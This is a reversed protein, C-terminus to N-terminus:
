HPILICSQEQLDLSVNENSIVIGITTGKGPVSSITMQFGHNTVIKNCIKLGLGTGKEGDTGTTSKVPLDSYIKEITDEDMGPGTDTISLICCDEESTLQVTIAGAHPTFKVANGVLNSIIQRFYVEDINISFNDPMKVTFDINKSQIKSKYIFFTSDIIPKILSIKKELKMDASGVKSWHLLKNFYEVLFSSSTLIYNLFEIHEESYFRCIKEDEILLQAFGSISTFPTRLDHAVIRIFEEKARLNEKIELEYNRVRLATQLRALLEIEDVPKRLYEIAGMDLALKIDTADTRASVMIVPIDRTAENAKIKELVELGTMEPMMIDLLIVDPLTQELIQLAERGNMATITKYGEGTFIRKLFYVNGYEDDVILIKSGLFKEM